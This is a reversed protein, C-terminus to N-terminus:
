TGLEAEWRLNVKQTFVSKRSIEGTAGMVGERNYVAFSTQVCIGESQKKYDLRMAETANQLSVHAATTSLTSDDGYIYSTDFWEDDTSNGERTVKTWVEELLGLELRHYFDYDLGTIYGYLGRGGVGGGEGGGEIERRTGTWAVRLCVVCSTEVASASDTWALTEAYSGNAVAKSTDYAIDISTLNPSVSTKIPVSCDRIQTNLITLNQPVPAPIPAPTSSNQAQALHLIPLITLLQSVLSIRSLRRM